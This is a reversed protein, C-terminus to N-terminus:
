AEVAGHRRREVRAKDSQLFRWRRKSWGLETQAAVGVRGRVVRKAPSSVQVGDGEREGDARRDVHAELVETRGESQTGIEKSKFDFHGRRPPIAASRQLQLSM